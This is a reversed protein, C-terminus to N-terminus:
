EYRAGGAPLDIPVRLRCVAGGGKRNELEISGQHQEIIKYVISLGLGTGNEKTSFFPTFVKKLAEPPIGTGQDAFEIVLWQRAGGPVAGGERTRTIRIELTGGEPMSQVANLSLNWFAQRIMQPDMIVKGGSTTDNIMIQYVPKEPLSRRLLDITEEIIARPDAPKTQLPRPNAFLLFDTIIRNLRETERIVIDMLGETGEQAPLEEKLMQISGSISALPNRIEHAVGAAMEGIAALRDSRKIQEELKKIQTLDQFSCIVGGLEGRENRLPSFTIGLIAAANKALAGECRWGPEALDWPYTFPDKGPPLKFISFFQTGLCRYGPCQTIKEAARNYSIIRGRLDTTVLGSSISQVINEYLSQLSALDSERASLAEGTRRLSESLYAGLLAVTFFATVNITAHALVSVMGLVAYRGEFDLWAAYRYLFPGLVAVLYLTAGELTVLLGGRRYFMISSGIVTLFFLVSYVSEVGGTFIIILAILLNDVMLQLYGFAPSAGFRPRLLVYLVTLLAAAATVGYLGEIQPTLLGTGRVQQAVALLFISAVIFARLIILWRIRSSLVERNQTM